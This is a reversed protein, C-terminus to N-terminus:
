AEKVFFLETGSLQGATYVIDVKGACLDAFPYGGVAPHVPRRVPGPRSKSWM